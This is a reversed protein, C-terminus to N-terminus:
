FQVKFPGAKSLHEEAELSISEGEVFDVWSRHDRNRKRRKLALLFENKKRLIKGKEREKQKEKFVKGM